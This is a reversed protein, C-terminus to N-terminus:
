KFYKYTAAAAIPNVPFVENFNLPTSVGGHITGYTNDLFKQNETAIQANVTLTLMLAFIFTFFKKM